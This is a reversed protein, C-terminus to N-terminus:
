YDKLIIRKLMNSLYQGNRGAELLSIGAGARTMVSSDSGRLDLHDNISDSGCAM